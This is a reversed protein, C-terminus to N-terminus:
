EYDRDMLYYDKKLADSMVLMGFLVAIVVFCADM